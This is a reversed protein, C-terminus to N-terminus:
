KRSYGLDKIRAIKKQFRRMKETKHTRYASMKIEM